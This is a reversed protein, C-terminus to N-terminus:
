LGTLWIGSAYAMKRGSIEAFFVREGYKEILKQKVRKVGYVDVGNSFERMKEELNELTFPQSENELWICLEDFVVKM